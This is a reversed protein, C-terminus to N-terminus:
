LGPQALFVAFTTGSTLYEPLQEILRLQTSVRNKYYHSRSSHIGEEWILDSASTFGVGGDFYPKAITSREFMTSDIHITEGTLANEWFFYPKAYSANSPSLYSYSNRTFDLKLDQVFTNITGTTREINPGTSSVQFSRGSATVVTYDGDLTVDSFGLLRVEQGAVLSTIETTSVNLVGNTRYFDSVTYFETLNKSLSKTNSILTQNADYWEMGWGGLYDEARDGTFASRIYGSASYWFGGLVPVFDTYSLTVEDDATADLRLSVDSNNAEDKILLDRTMTANNISWFDTNVEFSPNKFENVRSAKLTINVTRAEEFSTAGESSQEFQAADLYHIEAVPVSEIRVYPVAFYANVPAVNTSSVRTAWSGVTDNSFAEGARSLEIGNRDYWIIDVHVSRAITKARAYVSFTYSFGERVPVGRTKPASLGCTLVVDGTATTKTVKLSGSTKNPFESPLSPESYALVEAPLAVALTATGSTVAWRGISQEFSSDNYDLMLNKGMVTKEDYGTFAKIFNRLGEFSGKSKNIYVANRLLIRSQQLGLEPEYTVGFQQMMVPIIPAYAVSTDYTNLLLNATTKYQDYEISFIKLFDELDENKSNDTVASLNKTKYIAPLADYMRDFSNFNKSSVGVANGAKVWTESQTSFVFLSYHYGSAEKLGFGAPIQGEDIFYGTSFNKPEDLIITGDDVSLPFGYTNRVLRIRTWDGTPPTWTLEIRQYGVSKALFPSADFEVFAVSGAGYVGVGYYDIGYRSM